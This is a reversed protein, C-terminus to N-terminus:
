RLSVESGMNLPDGHVSHKGTDASLEESTEDYNLRDMCGASYAISITKAIRTPLPSPRVPPGPSFLRPKADRPPSVGVVGCALRRWRWGVTWGDEDSCPWSNPLPRQLNERPSQQRFQKSEVELAKAEQVTGDRRRDITEAMLNFEPHEPRPIDHSGKM